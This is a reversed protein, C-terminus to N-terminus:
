VEKRFYKIPDYWMNLEEKAVYGWKTTPIGGDKWVALHCHPAYYTEGKSNKNVFNNLTGLITNENIDDNIKLNKNLNLHGYLISVKRDKWDTCEVIVVGGPLYPNLGGFGGVEQNLYIIKGQMLCPFSFNYINGVDYGNHYTAGFCEGFTRYKIKQYDLFNLM